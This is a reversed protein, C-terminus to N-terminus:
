APQWDKEAQYRQGFCLVLFNLRNPRAAYRSHAVVGSDKLVIQWYQILGVVSEVTLQMARRM